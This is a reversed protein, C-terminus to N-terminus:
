KTGGDPDYIVCGTEAGAPLAAPTFKFSPSTAGNWDTVPKGASSTAAADVIVETEAAVVLGTCYVGIVGVGESGWPQDYDICELPVGAQKVSVTAAMPVSASVKESLNVGVLHSLGKGKECVAIRTVKPDSGPRFRAGSSGDPLAYYWVGGQTDSWTVGPPLLVSVVHWVDALPAAPLAELYADVHPESAAASAAAAPVPALAPWTRIKLSQALAAVTAADVSKGDNDLNLRPLASGVASSVARWPSWAEVSPLPAGGGREPAGAEGGAAPREPPLSPRQSGDRGPPQGPRTNDPPSPLAGAPAAAPDATCAASGACVAIAVLWTARSQCHFSSM